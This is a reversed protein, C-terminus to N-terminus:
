KSQERVWKKETNTHELVSSNLNDSVVLSVSDGRRVNSEGFLSLSQDSICSFVLQCGVRSVSYEIGLSKNASHESVASDLIVDFEEWEFSNLLVGLRINNNINISLLLGKGSLFNASHNEGLYM